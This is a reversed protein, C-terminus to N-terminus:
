RRLAEEAVMERVVERMATELEDQSMQIQPEDACRRLYEGWTENEGKAERAAEWAPTPVRMTTYGDDVM